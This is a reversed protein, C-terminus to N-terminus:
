FGLKAILEIETLSRDSVELAEDERSRCPSFYLFPM